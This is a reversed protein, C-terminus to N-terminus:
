NKKWIIYFHIYSSSSSNLFLKTYIFFIGFRFHYIWINLIYSWYSLFSYKQMIGFLNNGTKFDGVWKRSFKTTLLITIMPLWNKLSQFFLKSFNTPLDVIDTLRIKVYSLDIWDSTITFVLIMLFFM